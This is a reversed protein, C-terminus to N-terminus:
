FPIEIWKDTLKSTLNILKQRDCPNLWTKLEFFEFVEIHRETIHVPKRVGFMSYSEIDEPDPLANINKLGRMLERIIDENLHRSQVTTLLLINRSIREVAYYTEQWNDNHCNEFYRVEGRAFAFGEKTSRLEGTEFDAWVSYLHGDEEQLDRSFQRLAKEQEKMIAPVDPYHTPPIHRGKHGVQVEPSFDSRKM